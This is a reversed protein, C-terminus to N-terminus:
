KKLEFDRVREETKRIDAVAAAVNNKVGRTGNATPPSPPWLVFFEEYLSPFFVSNSKRDHHQLFVLHKEALWGKQETTYTSRQCRLSDFLAGLMSKTASMGANFSLSSRCWYTLSFLSTLINLNAVRSDRKYLALCLGNRAKDRAHNGFVRSGPGREGNERTLACCIPMTITMHGRHVLATVLPTTERKVQLAMM